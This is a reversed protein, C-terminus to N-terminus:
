KPLNVFSFVEEMVEHLEKQNQESLEQLSASPDVNELGITDLFSVFLKEEISFVYALDPVPLSVLVDYSADALYIDNWSFFAIAFAICTFSLIIVPETKFYRGVASFNVLIHTIAACVFLISIWEHIARIYGIGFELFILVGTIATVIFAGITSSTSLSRKTKQM